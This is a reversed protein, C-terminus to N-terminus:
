SDLTTDIESGFCFTATHTYQLLVKFKTKKLYMMSSVTTVLILILCMIAAMKASRGLGTM